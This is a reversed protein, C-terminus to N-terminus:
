PSASPTLSPGGTRHAFSKTYEIATTGSGDNPTTIINVDVSDQHFTLHMFGWVIGKAYLTTLEPSKKTQHAQFWTNLPRHKSAAGSVLQLLPRANTGPLAVACSDTHVELTHEHGALYADAYRCLTPLLLRRMAKAEEFKSGASSWLPHHGIVIKWRARSERLSRELWEVMRREDENAPKTWPEPVDLKTPPLESGDDALADDYVTTGALLVETDLAFIEVDGNAAPPQVRYRIGDMHFPNTTELYRVESLAAERSTRWDHNGLTAYIRFDPALKGFDRFPTLLIEDFRKADDVGDKGGTPGNPYINDGLMVAANCRVKSCHARMADAVLMTGTASVYGGTSPLRVLSPPEFEAPPRKDDIWEQREHEIAEELTRVPFRDKAELYDLDYGHDGFVLLTFPPTPPPATACGSLIAVTLVSLAANRIRTM